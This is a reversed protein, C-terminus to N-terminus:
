TLKPEGGIDLGMALSGLVVEERQERSKRDTESVM